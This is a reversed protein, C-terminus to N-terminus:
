YYIFGQLITLRLFLVDPIYTCTDLMLTVFYLTYM